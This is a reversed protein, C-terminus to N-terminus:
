HKKIKAIGVGAERLAQEANRSSFLFINNQPLWLRNKSALVGALADHVVRNELLPDNTVIRSIHLAPVWFFSWVGGLFLAVVIVYLRLHPFITRWDAFRNKKYHPKLNM